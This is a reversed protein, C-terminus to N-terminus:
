LATMKKFDTTDMKAQSSVLAELVLKPNHAGYSHDHKIMILNYGSKAIVQGQVTDLMNVGNSVFVDLFAFYPKGDIKFNVAQKGAFYRHNVDSLKGGTFVTYEKDQRAPKPM